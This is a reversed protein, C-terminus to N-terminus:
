LCNKELFNKFFTSVNKNKFLKHKNKAIKEKVNRYFNQDNLLKLSIDIYEEKTSAILENIKMEKLMAYTHRGRMFKTPYTVVPCDVSFAQLSSNGGNHNITDLTHHSISLFGMYDAHDLRPVLKIHDNINLNLEKYKLSIREILRQSILKNPTGEVFIILSNRSKKSIEEISLRWRGILIAVM